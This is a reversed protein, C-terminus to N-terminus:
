THAVHSAYCVLAAIATSDSITPVRIGERHISLKAGVEIYIDIGEDPTPLRMSGTIAPATYPKKM